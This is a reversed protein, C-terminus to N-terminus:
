NPDSTLWPTYDIDGSILAAPDDAQGWWNGIANIPQNSTSNLADYLANNYISNCGDSAATGLDASLTVDDSDSDTRVGYQGNDKITNNRVQCDLSSGMFYSAMVLGDEAGDKITNGSIEVNTISASGWPAEGNAVVGIGARVCDSVTNDSITIDDIAGGDAQVWIGDKDSDTIHNNRITIGQSLVVSDKSSFLIGALTCGSITNDEITINQMTGNLNYVSICTPTAESFTNRSITINEILATTTYGTTSVCISGAHNSLFTNDTITLGSITENLGAIAYIAAGQSLNENIICHHILTNDAHRVTIVGNTSNQAHVGMITCNNTPIGIQYVSIASGLSNGDIVPYGSASIGNFGGNYGSGWLTIGESLEVWEVYNGGGKRVYVWKDGIANDVGDQIATYPHEYTGDEIGTANSNDVYTLGDV